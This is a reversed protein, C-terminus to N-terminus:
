KMDSYEIWGDFGDTEKEFSASVDDSIYLDDMDVALFDSARNDYVLATMKLKGDKLIGYYNDNFADKAYSSDPIKLVKRVRQMKRKELFAM